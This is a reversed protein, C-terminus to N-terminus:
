PRGFMRAGAVTDARATFYDTFARVFEEETIRGDGDADLERFGDTLEAPHVRTGGFLVRYEDACLHGSGDRDAARFMARVAPHLGAALYGPDRDVGALTAAVFEARGIRGDGDADMTASLHRWWADFAARVEAEREAPAELPWCVVHALARLDSLGIRGDGTQDLVRRFFADLREPRRDRRRAHRRRPPRAARGAGGPTVRYRWRDPLRPAVLRAARHLCWSLAAAGPGRRLGLRERLAPPLDAVTLAEVARAVLVRVVPWAPGLRRLRGPPPAERLVGSLLHRVEPGDALEERIVRDLYAPV